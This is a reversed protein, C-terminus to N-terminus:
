GAQYYRHCEMSNFFGKFNELNLMMQKEYKNAQNVDLEDTKDGRYQL